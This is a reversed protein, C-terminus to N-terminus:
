CGQGNPPLDLYARATRSLNALRTEQPSYYNNWYTTFSRGSRGRLSSIIRSQRVSATGMNRAARRAELSPWASPPNLLRRGANYERRELTLLARRTQRLRKGHMQKARVVNKGRFMVRYVAAQATNTPCISNLYYRGASTMSMATASGSISLGLALSVVLVLFTRRIM